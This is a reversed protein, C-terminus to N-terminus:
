LFAPRSDDDLKAETSFVPPPVPDPQELKGTRAAQILTWVKEPKLPMDITKIGLPALADLVANVIAPPAGICGAEGVGKAGLPNLPSPTEVTDTVFGPLQRANPLTYDMLTGTLLQGGDKDYMVEEYLAQGIGQALAGHVQAAVLYDNLVRGCDDVAVYKVLEVDGTDTNVEVVAIHTGSSFTANPPFFDRWAALGEIPKGNALNPAEHEILDPQEEVRRALEGLEIKRAPVGQVMVNGDEMVLDAPDAELSRAAVQLAKDRAAEAALLVASGSIQLTRSGFTGFGYAPLDSDNMRVEIKTGPLKFTRAALQAFTTFHGQGNTAVGSQVLITGDRRIRVTASEQPIGPRNPALAGGSIEVFTALGIGSLHTNGVERGARQKARWGEYDILELARDLAMGYNGSDYEVGTPTQYPFADPAILNRRRVEVPDLGLESAIRNITRELIYTAEPRGAGRYAGTPVKNTFAGVVQSDVAEIRYPGNLMSPTGNPVMATTFALFAGLDAITRVKLGLLRGDNQVAAEVYNIQGRGQTQAQLNESRTEIWKVPREYKFALKAAVIEEGVFVTKAGFGGGVEANFVRIRGRDIDLIGALADRVRYISQSSVWATFQGSGADYDFLCARPELSSPALRQNVLRLKITRDASAFAAAIDGKGSQSQFAMNTGFDDYLLPAGAALAAEPDTVSPLPEYDVEILDRADEAISLSEALVVAVPDGAYRVRGLALPRREPKKLGPLPITDMPRMDSVLEEGAFVAVVGSLAKAADMKINKLEAHAYPSRVVAMHLTAPRGEPPRLDDVYFAHGTILRYDETRRELGPPITTKLM